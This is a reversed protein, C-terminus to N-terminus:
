QYELNQEISENDKIHVPTKKFNTLKVSNHISVSSGFCINGKLSLAKCDLLSPAGFPFHEKLQSISLFYENDLQIDINQHKRAPNATINYNEDMIFADSWLLLLDECSKVPAFRSRPVRLATANDFVSIAAGMASEIQYVDPSQKDLTDLKKRNKIMPLNLFGNSKDLISKLAVLDIWLNNTNFYCYKLIDRFSEVAELPCQAAERLILRGNKLRAIHGGKRDMFTRDTVEMLFQINKKEIYGLIEPALTAGLNDINSVFAYRYGKLLLQELIGSTQFAIYIDGHGPPNWELAPDNSVVAPELSSVLVKPYKNQIFSNPIDSNIEPYKELAALSESETRFSNMLILPIKVQYKKNFAILQRCTIDLFNLDDKVSIMSKPGQLGMTTGLGGNLKVCAVKSLLQRIGTNENASIGSLDDIDESNVPEIESESILGTDGAEIKEFYHIFTNIVSPSLKEKQMKEIYLDILKM